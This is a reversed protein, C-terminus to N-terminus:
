VRLGDQHGVEVLIGGVVGLVLHVRALDLVVEISEVLVNPALHALIALNLLNDDAIVVIVTRIVM